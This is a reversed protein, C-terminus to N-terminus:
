IIVGFGLHTGHEYYYNMTHNMYFIYKVHKLYAYLFKFKVALIGEIPIYDSYGKEYGTSFSITRDFGLSIKPTISLKNFIKQNRSLCLRISNTQEISASTRDYKTKGLVDFNLPFRNTTQECIRYMAGFSLQFFITSSCCENFNKSELYGLNFGIGSEGQVGVEYSRVTTSYFRHKNYNAYRIYQGKSYPVPCAFLSSSILLVLFFSSIHKM